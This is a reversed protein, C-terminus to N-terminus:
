VIFLDLVYGSCQNEEKIQVNFLQRRMIRGALQHIWVHASLDQCLDRHGGRLMPMNSGALLWFPWVSNPNFLPLLIQAVLESEEILPPPHVAAVAAAVSLPKDPRPIQVANTYDKERHGVPGSM